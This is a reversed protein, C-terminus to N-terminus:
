STPHLRFLYQGGRRHFNRSFFHNCNIRLICPSFTPRTNTEEQLRIAWMERPDPLFHFKRIANNMREDSVPFFIRGFQFQERLSVFVNWSFYYRRTKIISNKLFNLRYIFNFILYRTVYLSQSITTESKWHTDLINAHRFSSQVYVKYCQM